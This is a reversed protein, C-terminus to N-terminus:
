ANWPGASSVTGGDSASPIGPCDRLRQHVPQGAAVVLQVVIQAVHFTIPALETCHTPWNSTLSFNM